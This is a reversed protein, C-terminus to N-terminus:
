LSLDKSNKWDATQRIFFQCGYLVVGTMLLCLIRIITPASAADYLLAKGASFGLVVLASRAMDEDERAFSFLIVAVAYFLWSASVALSGIDTTLRYLGVIALLHACGLLTHGCTKRPILGSDTNKALVVWLSALSAFSVVLWSTDYGEVLHALMTLYEIVLIALLALIPVCFSGKLASTSKLPAFAAAMIIVVFLWPRIFDPLLELYISHFCVVATFALILSQSALGQPFYKRASLYLGILVGAFTLSIWPALGPHILNIFYYELAYFTLLVPLFCWAEVEDLPARNQRAYFYTGVSFILFYMPLITAILADQHLPIGVFATAAIALYASVLILARSQVWVSITAFAISCILFYYLSFTAETNLGLIVPAIYAGLTATIPYIDHRIKTYLLVCLGSVLSTMGIAAEFPVLSYYRYSAFSTLYLIIVGAEPLLSAYERDSKLLAFGTGILSFGLLAALGVQRAPTLWGSNISLKIIFGAALVFCIVAIIGLWNGQKEEQPPTFAPVSSSRSPTASPSASLAFPDDGDENRSVQPSIQLSSEIKSLRAEISSLRDEVGSSGM